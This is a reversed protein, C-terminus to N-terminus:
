VDLNNRFLQESFGRLGRGWSKSTSRLQQHSLMGASRADGPLLDPSRTGDRERVPNLHSPATSSVLERDGRSSGRSNKKVSFCRYRFCGVPDFCAFGAPARYRDRPTVSVEAYRRCVPTDESLCRTLRTPLRPRQRALPPATLLFRPFFQFLRTPLSRITTRTTRTTRTAPLAPM